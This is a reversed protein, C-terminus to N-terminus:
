YVAAIRTHMPTIPKPRNDGNNVARMKAVGFANMLVSTPMATKFTKFLLKVIAKLPCKERPAIIEKITVIDSNVSKM